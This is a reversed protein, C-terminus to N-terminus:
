QIADVTCTLCWLVTDTNIVALVAQGAPWSRQFVVLQLKCIGSICHLGYVCVM